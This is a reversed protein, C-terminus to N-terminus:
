SPRPITPGSGSTRPSARMTATRAACTPPAPCCIPQQRATQPNIRVVRDAYETSTWAEGHKDVWVDYAYYGAIGTPYMQFKGVKPDFMGVSDTRNFAVWLRDQADVMGRRPGSDKADAQWITIEGTKADIRGVDARGIVSFWGNNQSDSMVQYHNPRPVTFAAFKEWKHTNIDVRMITWEGNNMVWVKGDVKHNRPAVFLLENFDGDLEPPLPYSKWTETRRDFMQIGNQFGNGVWINEDADFEVDLVGKNRAPKLV